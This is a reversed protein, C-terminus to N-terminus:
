SGHEQVDEGDSGGALSANLNKIAKRFEADVSSILKDHLYAQLTKGYTDAVLKAKRVLDSDLRVQTGRGSQKKKM